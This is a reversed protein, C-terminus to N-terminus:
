DDAREWDRLVLALMGECDQLIALDEREDWLWNHQSHEPVSYSQALSQLAYALELPLFLVISSWIEELFIVASSRHRLCKEPWIEGDGVVVVIKVTLVQRVVNGMRAIFNKGRKTWKHEWLIDSADFPGKKWKIGSLWQPNNHLNYM